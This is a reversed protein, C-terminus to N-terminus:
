KELVVHPFNSESGMTGSSKGRDTTDGQGLQGDSNKGWCKPQGNALIACTHTAGASIQRVNFGLSVPSFETIEDDSNGVIPETSSLGLKGFENNGWCLTDGTNLLACAHDKGSTLQTATRAKGFSDTGLSVTTLTDGMHGSQHGIMPDTAHHDESDSISLQGTSNDGWCKVSGNDLLACAFEYGVVVQQVLRDTGLDLALLSDGMDTTADGRVSIDELGLQGKINAGWCKLSSNDLVVCTSDGGAAIQVATRNTGLDTTTDATEDDGIKDNSGSNDGIGLQGFANDGWCIVDGTDVIVCTHNSGAAISVVKRTRGSESGLDTTADASEDDGISDNSGSNDGIGLQGSTNDGWCNVLSDSNIICTHNDGAVIDIANDDMTVIALSDGMDDSTDGVDATSNGLGLQGNENFGWCKVEHDWMIACSHRAGAAVKIPLAQNRGLDITTPTTLDDSTDSENGLEGSSNDGWCQVTGDILSACTHTTGSAINIAKSSMSIASQATPAIIDTDEGNTANGLQGHINDGWCKVTSDDLIACTFLQGASIKRVRIDTSVDTVVDIDSTSDGIINNNGNIDGIGLQGDSNSGWCKMTSDDLLACNHYKGLVINKATRSTSLTVNSLADAGIVISFSQDGDSSGDDVGTVTVTQAVNYNSSTFTLSSPSLTAETTDSSSVTVTISNTPASNLKVTFTDTTADEDTFIDTKSVRIGQEDDENTVTITPPTIGDYSADDSSVDTINISYSQFGDTSSDDAGTVTVDVAYPSTDTSTEITIINPNLSYDVGDSSVLDITGEGNPDNVDIKYSIIANTAPTGAIQITFSSSTGSESTTLSTSSISIGFTENDQNTIFINPPDLSTYNSDSSADVSVDIEFTIDGDRSSDDIGTVLVSQAIKWNTADFTLSSPIITGESTDLSAMNLIVPNPSTPEKRLRISFTAQDGSEDTTDTLTATYGATDPTVDYSISGGSSSIVFGYQHENVQSGHDFNVASISSSGISEQDGLRDSLDGIGLQGSSNGGWCKINGDSLRTCTHEDGAQVELATGSGLDISNKSSVDSYDNDREGLGLQGSINDGWCKVSGDNLVACIHRSGASIQLASKGTELFISSSGCRDSSSGQGKQSKDNNGWVKICGNDLLVATFDDGAVIQIAYRDTGLDVTSLYDGMEDSADGVITDNSTDNLQGDTNDGWCKVTGNLFLGCTHNAGAALQIPTLPSGTETIFSLEYTTARWNSNTDELRNSDDGGIVTIKYNTNYNLTSSPTLVTTTDSSLDVSISVDTSTDTNTLKFSSTLPTSSSISANWTITYSSEPDIDTTGDSLSNTSYELTASGTTTTGGGGSGGSSSNSDNSSSRVCGALLLFVILLPAVICKVPIMQRIQRLKM